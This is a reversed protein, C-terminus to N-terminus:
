ASCGSINHQCRFVILDAQFCLYFMLKKLDIESESSNLGSLKLLLSKPAFDPPPFVCFINKLFLQQCREFKIPQSANSTFLQTGSLLSPLCAQRCFKVYVLPNTKRRIFDSSFIMVAKKRAKEINDDANSAFSSVYNKLVGLNEYEYLGDVVADGFM